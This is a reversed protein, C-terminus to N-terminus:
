KGDDNDDVDVDVDDDNNIINSTATTITNAVFVVLLSQLEGYYEESKQSQLPIHFTRKHRDERL